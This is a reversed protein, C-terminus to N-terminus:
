NEKFTNQSTIELCPNKVPKVQLKLSNTFYENLQKQSQKGIPNKKVKSLLQKPESVMSLKKGSDLHQQFENEYEITRMLFQIM